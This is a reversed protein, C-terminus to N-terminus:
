RGNLAKPTNRGTGMRKPWVTLQEVVRACKQLHESTCTRIESIARGQIKARQEANYAATAARGWKDIKAYADKM